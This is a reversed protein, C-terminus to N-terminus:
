AAKKKATAEKAEAQIETSAIKAGATIHAHDVKTAGDMHKLEIEYQYKREQIKLDADKLSMELDKKLSYEMQLAQMAAQATQAANQSNAESQAQINAMDAQQKQKKIQKQRMALYRRAQKLNKIEQIAIKDEPELTGMKLANNMDLYLDAWEQASPRVQIGIGYECLSINKNVEWFKVTDSGLAKVFGSVQGRKVANQTLKVASESLHQIMMRDAHMLYELANETGMAAFKSTGVLADPSPTTANTAENLGTLNNLMQVLTFINELFVGSKEINNNTLPIIPKGNGNQGNIKSGRFPFNGTKMFMNLIEKPKLGKGGKGLPAEILGDLDFAFGDPVIKAMSHQFQLWNIQIEDLIPICRDIISLVQGDMMNPAFIHLPIRTEGYNSKSVEMDEMLGYGYLYSSGVIWSGKYVVEYGDTIVEREGAYKEQYEISKPKIDKYLVNNGISNKKKEYSYQNFTKFWGRMVSIVKENSPNLYSDGTTAAYYPDVVGLKRCYKDYIDEYQEMTFETGAETRLESFTINEVYGGHAVDKYDESKSNGLMVTAPHIMKMKTKGALDNYQAVSAIGSVALHTLYEKRIQHFDNQQQVLMIAMEAEMALEDKETMDFHVDLEEPTEPMTNPDFGLQDKGLPIGLKDLTPKEQQYALMSNKKNNRKDVAFKDLPTCIPDYEIKMVRGVIINILNHAINIPAWNVNMFVEEDPNEETWCDLRQQYPKVPQMGMYFAINRKINVRNGYFMKVGSNSINHYMSKFYQMGYDKKGKEKATALPSPYAYSDAM